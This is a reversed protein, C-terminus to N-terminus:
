WMNMNKQSNESPIEGDQYDMVTKGKTTEGASKNCKLNRIQFNDLKKKRKKFRLRARKVPRNTIFRHQRYCGFFANKEGRLLSQTKDEVPSIECVEEKKERRGKRGEQGGARGVQSHRRKRWREGQGGDGRESCWGGWRTWGDGGGDKEQRQRPLNVKKTAFMRCGKLRVLICFMKSSSTQQQHPPTQSFCGLYLEGPLRSPHFGDTCVCARM